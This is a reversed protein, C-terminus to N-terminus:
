EGLNFMPQKPREPKAAVSEQQAQAQPVLGPPVLLEAVMDYQRFMQQM